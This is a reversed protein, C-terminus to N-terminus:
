NRKLQPTASPFISISASSLGGLDLRRMVDKLTTELTTVRLELADARQTEKELKERLRKIEDADSALPLQPSVLKPDSSLEKYYERFQDLNEPNRNNLRQLAELLSITKSLYKLLAKKHDLSCSNTDYKSRALSVLEVYLDSYGKMDYFNSKKISSDAKELNDWARAIWLNRDEFQNVNYFYRAIASQEKALALLQTPSLDSRSELAKQGNELDNRGQTVLAVIKASREAQPVCYPSRQNLHSSNGAYTGMLIFSHAELLANKGGNFKSFLLRGFDDDSMPM